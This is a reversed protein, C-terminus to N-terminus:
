QWLRNDLSRNPPPMRENLNPSVYSLKPVPCVILSFTMIVADYIIIVSISFFYLYETLCLKLSNMKQAFEKPYAIGYKSLFYATYIFGDRLVLRDNSNKTSMQATAPNILPSRPAPPPIRRTHANLRHIPSSDVSPIRSVKADVNAATSGIVATEAQNYPLCDKGAM